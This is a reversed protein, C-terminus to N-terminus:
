TRQESSGYSNASPTEYQCSTDTEMRNQTYLGLFDLYLIQMPESVRTIYVVNKQSRLHHGVSHLKKQCTLCNTIVMMIAKTPTAMWYRQLILHFLKHLRVHHAQVHMQMILREQLKKPICPRMERVELHEGQLKKRVLLGDPQIQLAPLIGLYKRLEVPMQLLERKEPTKGSEIWRKVECIIEDEKQAERFEKESVDNFQDASNDTIQHIVLANTEQEEEEHHDDSGTKDEKPTTRSLYDVDKILEAKQYEVEFNFNTVVELWRISLSRPFAM